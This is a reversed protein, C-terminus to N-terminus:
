LLDVMADRDVDGLALHTTMITDDTHAPRSTTSHSGRAIDGAAVGTIAEAAARSCGAARVRNPQASM